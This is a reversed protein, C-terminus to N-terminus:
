RSLQGLSTRQAACKDGRAMLALLGPYLERGGPPAISCVVDSCV